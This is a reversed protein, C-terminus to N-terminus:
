GRSSPAVGGVKFTGRPLGGAPLGDPQSGRPADPSAGVLAREPGPPEELRPRPSPHAALRWGPSGEPDLGGDCGIWPTTITHAHFRRARM